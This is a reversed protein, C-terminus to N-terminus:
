GSVQYMARMIAAEIKNAAEEGKEYRAPGLVRPWFGSNRAGYGRKSNINAKFTVGRGPNEGAVSGALMFIAGAPDKEIVSAKWVQAVGKRTRMVLKPQIGGAASSQNYGLDRGDKTAIWRGWNSVGDSPMNSQAYAAVSEAAKKMERDLVRATDKDFRKLRNIFDSAGVVDIAWYNKSGAM